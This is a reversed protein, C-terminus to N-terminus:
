KSIFTQDCFIEPGSFFLRWFKKLLMRSQVFISTSFIKLTLTCLASEKREKGGTLFEQVREYCLVSGVNCRWEKYPIYGGFNPFFTVMGSMIHCSMIGVVISLFKFSPKAAVKDVVDETSLSVSM